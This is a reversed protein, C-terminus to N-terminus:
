AVSSISSCPMSRGRCPACAVICRARTRALRRDRRGRLPPAEQTCGSFQAAHSLVRLPGARRRSLRGSEVRRKADRRAPHARPRLLAAELRRGAYAREASLRSRQAAGRGTDARTDHSLRLNCASRRGCCAHLPRPVAVRISSADTRFGRWACPVFADLSWRGIGTEPEPTINTAYITGFPTELPLGGAYAKSNPATHCSACGGIATLVAGRQISAADFSSRPPTDITPMRPRWASAFFAIGAVVTRAPSRRRPASGDVFESMGLCDSRTSRCKAHRAPSPGAIALQEAAVACAPFMASTTPLRPSSGPLDASSAPLDASSAPLDASADPLVPSAGARAGEPARRRRVRRDRMM